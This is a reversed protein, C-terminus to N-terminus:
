DPTPKNTTTTPLPLTGHTLRHLLISRAQSDAADSGPADGLTALCEALDLWITGLEASYPSVASSATAASLAARLIPEAEAYEGAALLVRAVKHLRRWNPLTQRRWNPTTPPHWHPTTQPRWHPTTQPRWDPTTPENASNPSDPQEPKHEDM